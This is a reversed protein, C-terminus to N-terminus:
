KMEKHEKLYEDIFLDDEIRQTEEDIPEIEEPTLFKPKDKM